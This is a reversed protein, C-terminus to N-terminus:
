LYYAWGTGAIRAHGAAKDKMGKYSFIKKRLFFCAM